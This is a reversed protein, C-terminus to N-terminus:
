GPEAPHVRQGTLNRLRIAIVTSQPSATELVTLPLGTLRALRAPDRVEYAEGVGLVSWGTLTNPDINDAEFAVVDKRAAGIPGSARFVIEDGDVLFAVPQAAPMALATFVVRGVAAGALLQLCEERDIAAPPAPVAM